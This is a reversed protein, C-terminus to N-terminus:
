GALWADITALKERHDDGAAAYTQRAQTALDRALAPDRGTQALAKALVFRISALATSDETGRLEIASDALTIADDPRGEALAIEALPELVGLLMPHKRGSAKEILRQARELLVRARATQGQALLVTGLAQLPFAVEAHEPGLKDEAIALARELLPLAAADDDLSHHVGALNTLARAVDLHDSGLAREQIALSRKLMVLAKDSDGMDLHVGALHGLTIGVDPHEPGLTRERISLARERLRLAEAHDGMDSVVGGFNDLATAVDPHEPGLLGEFIVLARAHAERAEEFAGLNKNANAIGTLAIAIEPHDPGLAAELLALSRGSVENAKAYDGDMRHLMALTQLIRGRRVGTPDPLDRELADGQRWWRMAEEARSLRYGVIYALDMASKVAIDTAAAHVAEFYAQELLREAQPYDGSADMLLALHRRSAATLPAWGLEDARAIVDRALELSEDYNGTGYLASSRFLDEEVAAIAERDTASPMPMRRLFDGDLCPDLSPLDAATQVARVVATPEGRTLTGVLADLERRHGDLCWVSRDRQEALWVPDDIARACAETRAGAWRDAHADLWPTVRQAADAAGPVGAESMRTHLQERQPDSWVSAIAGGEEECAAIAQVHRYDRLWAVSAVLGAAVAVGVLARTRWLRAHGRELTAVLEHMNPFREAPERALGRECARRVWRPVSRGAPPARLTGAAVSLALEAVTEGAFPHEGYLTEWLAVCFSFQDAAAEVPARRITEPAMYAPTGALSRMTVDTLPAPTDLGPGDSSSQAARALGFDMVRVRTGPGVMVNDPKFDRHVLGREHAAALGRGAAIFVDVIERWGRTRGRRWDALTEGEIFEMAVYVVEEHSGVDHVTVVNPHDLKAMAQAELLLRQQRRVRVESPEDAHLLKLAVNRDLEPDYAAYVVGMGGAGVRTLVVYRGVRDGPRLPSDASRPRAGTGNATITTSSSVGVKAHSQGTGRRTRGSHDRSHGASAEGGAHRLFAM